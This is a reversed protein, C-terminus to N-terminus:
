ENVKRRQYRVLKILQYLGVKEIENAYPMLDRLTLEDQLLDLIASLQDLSKQTHGSKSM